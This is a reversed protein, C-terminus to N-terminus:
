GGGRRDSLVGVRREKRGGGALEGGGGTKEDGCGEWRPVPSLM